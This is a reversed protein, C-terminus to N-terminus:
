VTPLARHIKLALSISQYADPDDLSVGLLSEALRYRYRVTNYHVFLKESAAKLNNGCEIVAAVTQVLNASHVADYDILKGITDTCFSRLEGKNEASYIIRYVGLDQFKAHGRHKLKQSISLTYENEQYVIPIEAASEAKRSQAIYYTDHGGADLAEEISAVVASTTADDPDSLMVVISASYVAWFISEADTRGFVRQNVRRSLMQATEQHSMVDDGSPPAVIMLVVLPYSLNWGLLAAQGIAMEDKEIIGNLLDSAFSSRRNRVTDEMMIQHQAVIRFVIAFQQLTILEVGGLTFEDPSCIAITGIAKKGFRVAYLACYGNSLSRYCVEADSKLARAAEVAERTDVNWGRCAENVALIEFSSSLLVIGCALNESLEKAITQPTGGRLLIDLVLEHIHNRHELESNKMQLSAKLFDNIMLSFNASSPLLLIPFDLGEAVSLGATPLASVYRNLKVGVGSLGANKMRIVFEEFKDLSDSIPYLTTLLFDGPYVYDEIDPVEMISIDEVSAGVGGFGAVVKAEAFNPLNLLDSVTAM